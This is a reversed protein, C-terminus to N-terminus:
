PKPNRDFTDRVLFHKRYTKRNVLMERRNHVRRFFQNSNGTKPLQLPVVISSSSLTSASTRANDTGTAEVTQDETVENRSTTRKRSRRVKKTPTDSPTDCSPDTQYCRKKQRKTQRPVSTTPVGDEPDATKSQSQLDSIMVSKFFSVLHSPDVSRSCTQGCLKCLLSQFPNIVSRPLLFPNLAFMSLSKVLQGFIPNAPSTSTSLSNLNDRIEPLEWIGCFKRLLVRQLERTAKLSTTRRVDRLVFIPAVPLTRMLDDPWDEGSANLSAALQVAAATALFIGTCDTVKASAAEFAKRMDVLEPFAGVDGNRLLELLEALSSVLDLVVGSSAESLNPLPRNLLLAALFEYVDSFRLGPALAVQAKLASREQQGLWKAHQDIVQGIAASFALEEGSLHRTTQILIGTGELDDLVTGCEPHYEDVGVGLCHAVRYGWACSYLCSDTFYAPVNLAHILKLTPTWTGYAALGSNFGIVLHPRDLHPLSDRIFEHYTSSCVSVSLRSSLNFTHRDVAPSFDTGIFFLRVSLDPNLLYALELFVPLMSLEHEVGVVHITLVGKELVSQVDQENTKPFIHALVYYITLPWHLLIAIPSSFESWDGHLSQSPPPNAFGRWIYYEAWDFLFVAALTSHRTRLTQPVAPCLSLLISEMPLSYARLM